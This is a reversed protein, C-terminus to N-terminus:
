KSLIRPWAHRVSESLMSLETLAKNSGLPPSIALVPTDIIEDHDNTLGEAM